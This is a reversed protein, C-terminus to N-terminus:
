NSSAIVDWFYNYFGGLFKFGEVIKPLLKKSMVADMDKGIAMFYVNKKSMWSKYAEPVGEDKFKKYDSGFLKLDDRKNLGDILKTIKPNGERIDAKIKDMTDKTAQFYGMGFSWYDIAIEFFYGPEQEWLDGGRKFTLWINNRYPSKDKSFRTDRHIRSITAGISPKTVFAPDISIMTPTLDMVLEQMPVLLVNEYRKRNEEFWPKNNNITLEVLFKLTDECFGEFAM